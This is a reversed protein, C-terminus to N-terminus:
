QIAYAINRLEFASKITDTPISRNAGIFNKPGHMEANNSVADRRLLCVAQLYNLLESICQDQFSEVSQWDPQNAVQTETHNVEAKIRHMPVM